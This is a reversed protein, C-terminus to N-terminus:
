RRSLGVSVIPTAAGTSDRVPIRAVIRALADLRAQYRRASADARETSGQGGAYFKAWEGLEIVKLRVLEDTIESEALGSAALDIQYLDIRVERYADDILKRGQDRQHDSPLTDLWSPLLAEVDQPLVGHRAPYRVVNFYTDAVYTTSSVVYVWRVRYMPNPGVADITLNSDDAIWTSDITAQIRTSQFTAGSAYDNHLPHKVTVSDASTVSEVEVFEKIGTTAHTILYTRGAAIGTTATLPINRPNSQSPGASGDLTTSPNSEVSGAGIAAESIDEDSVDWPYVACSTVSSPRGEPCDFEVTQGTVDFLIDKVTRM